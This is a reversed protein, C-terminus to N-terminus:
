SIDIIIDQVTYVVAATTTDDAAGTYVHIGDVSLYNGASAFDIQPDVSPNVGALAKMQFDLKVGDNDIPTTVKYIYEYGSFQKEEHTTLSGKVNVLKVGDLKLNPENWTAVPAEVLILAYSDVFEQDTANARVDFTIDLEGGSGVATATANDTTSTFNVGDGEYGTRVADSNDYMYAANTNDYARFELVGHQTGQIRLSYVSGTPTFVVNGNEVKANKGILVKEIQSNDGAFGDSSRMTLTYEEGCNVIFDNATTDTGTQYDGGDSYLVINADFTESGTTNLGNYLNVTINTSGAEPCAKTTTVPAKKDVITMGQCGIVLIGIVLMVSILLLKNTKM